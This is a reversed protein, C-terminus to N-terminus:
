AGPVLNFSEVCSQKTDWVRIHITYEIYECTKSLVFQKDMVGNQILFDIVYEVCELLHDDQINEPTVLRHFLLKEEVEVENSYDFEIDAM